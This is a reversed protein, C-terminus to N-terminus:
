LGTRYHGLKVKAVRREAGQGLLSRGGKSLAATYISVCLRARSTSDQTGRSECFERLYGSWQRQSLQGNNEIWKDCIKHAYFFIRKTIYRKLNAQLRRRKIKRWHYLLTM